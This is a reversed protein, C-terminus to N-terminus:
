RLRRLLRDYEAHPGFWFWMVVDEGHEDTERLAVARYDRGVRASWIPKSPSVPKFQIGPHAPNVQFRRYAALAQSQIESPVAALADRFSRTM